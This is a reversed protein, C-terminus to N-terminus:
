VKQLIMGSDSPDLEALAKELMLALHKHKNTEHASSKLCTIFKQLMRDDGEQLWLLFREVRDTPSLELLEKRQDSSIVGSKVMYPLVVDIYLCRQIEPYEQVVVRTCPVLGSYSTVTCSIIQM